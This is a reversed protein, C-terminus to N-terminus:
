SSIAFSSYAVAASRFLVDISPRFRNEEPGGGLIFHNQKVLLHLNPPAIYVTDKEIPGHNIALHCPMSTVKSLHHVVYDGIAKRSLHLVICYAADLGNPFGLVMEKLADLGGASAGIVVIFKPHKNIPIKKM